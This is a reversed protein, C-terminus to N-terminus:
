MYIRLMFAPSSKALADTMGTLVVRVDDGSNRQINLPRVQSPNRLLDSLRIRARPSAMDGVFIQMVVNRNPKWESIDESVDIQLGTMTGTTPLQDRVFDFSTDYLVASIAPSTGEFDPTGTFIPIGEGTDSGLAGAAIQPQGAPRPLGAPTPLSIPSPPLGGRTAGMSPDVAREMLMDVGAVGRTRVNSPMMSRTM